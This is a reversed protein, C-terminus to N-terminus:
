KWRSARVLPVEQDYMPVVDYLRFYRYDGRDPHRYRPHHVHRRGRFRLPVLQGRQPVHALVAPLDAGSISHPTGPRRIDHLQLVGAIGMKGRVPWGVGAVGRDLVSSM